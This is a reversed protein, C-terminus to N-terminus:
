ELDSIKYIEVRNSGDTAYYYGDSALLQDCHALYQTNTTLRAVIKPAIPDSINLVVYNFYLYNGKADALPNGDLWVSSYNSILDLQQGKINFIQLNNEEANQWRNFEGSVYLYDNLIKLKIHERPKIDIEYQNILEWNKPDSVNYKMIIDNKRWKRNEEALYLYDGSLVLDQIIYPKSKYHHVLKFKKPNSINFVYVGKKEWAVYLYNGSISLDMPKSGSKIKYRTVATINNLDSIDFVKIVKMRKGRRGKNFSLYAYDGSVLFSYFRNRKKPGFSNILKPDKPNSVDFIRIPSNTKDSESHWRPGVFLYDGKKQLFSMNDYHFNLKKIPKPRLLPDEDSAALVQNAGIILIFIAGLLLANTKFKFM